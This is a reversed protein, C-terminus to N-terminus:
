TGQLESNFVASAFEILFLLRGVRNLEEHVKLGAAPQSQILSRRYRDPIKENM